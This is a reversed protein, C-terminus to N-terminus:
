ATSFIPVLYDNVRIGSGYRSNLATACGSRMASTYDSDLVKGALQRCAFSLCAHSNAALSAMRMTPPPNAAKGGRHVNQEVSASVRPAQQAPTKARALEIEPSGSVTM